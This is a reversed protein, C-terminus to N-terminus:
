DFGSISCFSFQANWPTNVWGSFFLYRKRLSESVPHEKYCDKYYYKKELKLCRLHGYLIWLIITCKNLLLSNLWQFFHPLNIHIPLLLDQWDNHIVYVPQLITNIKAYIIHM